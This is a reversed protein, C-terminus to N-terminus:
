FTVDEMADVYGDMDCHFQLYTYMRREIYAPKSSRKFCLLVKFPQDKRVNVNIYRETYTKRCVSDIQHWGTYIFMFVEMDKLGEREKMLADCTYLKFEKSTSLYHQKMFLRSSACQGQTLQEWLSFLLVLAPGLHKLFSAM